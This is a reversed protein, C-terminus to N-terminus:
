DLYTKDIRYWVHGSGPHVRLCSQSQDYEAIMTSLLYVHTCNLNFYIHSYIELICLVGIIKQVCWYLYYRYCCCESISMRHTPCSDRYDDWSRAKPARPKRPMLWEKMHGGTWMACSRIFNIKPAKPVYSQLRKVIDIVGATSSPNSEIVELNVQKYQFYRM